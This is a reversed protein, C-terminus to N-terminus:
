AQRGSITEMGAAELAHMLRFLSRCEVHLMATLSTAVTAKRECKFLSSAPQACKM